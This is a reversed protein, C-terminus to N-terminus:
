NRMFKDDTIGLKRRLSELAEAYVTNAGCHRLIELLREQDPKRTLLIELEWLAVQDSSYPVKM